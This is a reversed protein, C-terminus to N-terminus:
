VVPAVGAASNVLAGTNANPWFLAVSVFAFLVAVGVGALLLSWSRERLDSRSGGCGARPL